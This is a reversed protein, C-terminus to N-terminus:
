ESSNSSPHPRGGGAPDLWILSAMRGGGPERRHSFFRGADSQTCWDPATATSLGLRRLRLAALAYLDLYWRGSRQSPRFAREEEEDAIGCRLQQRVEDGVEYVAGSIAPGFAALLGAEPARARLVRVGAEIIGAALGRWGAHLLMVASGDARCLFVPLCDASLVACVTGPARAYSGDARVGPQARAADVIGAGHQQALWLPEAPLGLRRRLLRRNRRVADAGGGVHTALNFAGGDDLSRLTTCARVRPPANWCPKIMRVGAVGPGPGSEPDPPTMTGNPTM